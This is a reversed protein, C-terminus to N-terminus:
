AASVACAVGSWDCLAGGANAKFAIATSSFASCDLVTVGSNKEWTAELTSGRWLTVEYYFIGFSSFFQLRLRFTGANCPLSLSEGMLINHVEDNDCQNNKM